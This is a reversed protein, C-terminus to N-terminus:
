MKEGNKNFNDVVIKYQSKLKDEDTIDNLIFKNILKILDLIDEYKLLNNPIDSPVSGSPYRNVINLIATFQKALTNTNSAILFLENVQTITLEEQKHSNSDVISKLKNLSTM